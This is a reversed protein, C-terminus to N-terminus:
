KVIYYTLDSAVSPYVPIFNKLDNVTTKNEIMLTFYNILEEANTALVVAGAVTQDQQNLIVTVQADTDLLRNYTYWEGVSASNIKFL